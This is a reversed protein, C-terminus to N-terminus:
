SFGRLGVRSYISPRWAALSKGPKWHYFERVGLAERCRGHKSGSSILFIGAITMLFRLGNEEAIDMQGIILLLVAPM